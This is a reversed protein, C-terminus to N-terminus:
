TAQGCNTRDTNWYGYSFSRKLSFGDSHWHAVDTTWLRWFAKPYETDLINRISTDALRVPEDGLADRYCNPHSLGYQNGACYCYLPIPVGVVEARHRLHLAARIFRHGHGQFPAANEAPAPDHAVADGMCLAEFQIRVPDAAPSPKCSLVPRDLTHSLEHLAIGSIASEIDAPDMREDFDTDNIVMCPGRGRWAPGIVSELYMDLRPSYFGDCVAKGGLHNPLRSQPVIYLPMDGLDLPAVSRCLSEARRCLTDIM